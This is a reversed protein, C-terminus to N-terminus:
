CPRKKDPLKPMIEPRHYCVIELKRMDSLYEADLSFYSSFFCAFVGAFGDNSYGALSGFLGIRFADKGDVPPVPGVFVTAMVDKVPVEVLVAAPYSGSIPRLVDGSQSTEGNREDFGCAGATDSLFHSLENAIDAL